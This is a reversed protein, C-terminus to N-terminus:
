AVSWPLVSGLRFPVGIVITSVIQFAGIVVAYGLAYRSFWLLPASMELVLVLAMGSARLFGPVALTLRQIMNPTLPLVNPASGLLSPLYQCRIVLLKLFNGDCWYLGSTGIKTVAATYYWMSIVFVTLGASPDVGTYDRVLSGAALALLIQGCCVPFMSPRSGTHYVLTNLLVVLILMMALKGKKNACAMFGLSIGIAGLLNRRMPSFEFIEDLCYVCESWAGASFLLLQVPLTAKYWRSPEEFLAARTGGADLLLAASPLSLFIWFLWSSTYVLAPKNRDPHDSLQVTVPQEVWSWQAGVDLVLWQDHKRVVFPRYTSAAPASSYLDFVSFSTLQRRALCNAIVGALQVVVILQAALVSNSKVM